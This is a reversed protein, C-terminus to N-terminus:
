KTQPATPVPCIVVRSSARGNARVPPSHSPPPRGMCQVSAPLPPAAMPPPMKSVKMPSITTHVPPHSLRLSDSPYSKLMKPVTPDLMMRSVIAHSHSRPTQRRKKLEMLEDGQSAEVYEMGYVAQRYKDNLAISDLGVCIKSMMQAELQDVKESKRLKEFKETRKELEKQKALKDSILKHSVASKENEKSRELEGQLWLSTQKEELFNQQPGIISGPRCIRIWAICEAATFKYHKMIYCAILTGTRGLGAKCHVAVAGRTNESITLFRRIIADTPTSGDVFFLDRHDFGADTFRRTDYLQKNLRVITTVNNIRFYSFYHEPAHLPYGNEIRSKNHPGSFALFKGPIIWNLDGNEVREFHEYEDVNFSDFQLFGFKLAKYMASFCHHLTLNFTCTGFSADRFPLFPPHHSAALPRYAEDPLKNHYIIVYCGILYAANARKRSDFSTYHVIKKKALSSSKLKKNLKLCYRYLMSLNLPGFDGYFNEYQFEDDVNFYHVTSTNRPKSRLTAFYLRGELFECLAVERDTAM